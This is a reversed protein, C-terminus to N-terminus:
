AHLTKRMQQTTVAYGSSGYLAVAAANHGFVNLELAVSGADLVAMEVAALLARGLGGGRRAEVVQIDYLFATDPAGRPHDLGVWARGVLEGAPDVGSLFLMRPTRIGRPLLEANVALARDFAGEHAWRGVTVQEAAFEEATSRQWTDFESATMPRVSVEIMLGHDCRSPRSDRAFGSVRLLPLSLLALAVGLAAVAAMGGRLDTATSWLGVYVPGVLFGLYAIMTVVATARGRYAEDVRASVLGLLTPYLAATGAAAVVLGLVAIPVSPAASLTLAGVAATLAGLVLIPREGGPPLRGLSFRAVAVVGAFVAPGVAGFGPGADLEDVLFVAGWSQHANESAFALAGLLGIVLLPLYRIRPREHPLLRATNSTVATTSRKLSRLLGAGAAISLVAVILFPLFAPACLAASLGTALSALVVFSSFVGGSRLIISSGSSQEARGAISNMAVDTAGSALGVAILGVCLAVFGHATLAVGLGALGLAVIAAVAFRLGWRDLARGTLLMAPLAGAGIFLLAVGLEGDDVGAQLRLRPISAGWAGWFSGFSAAALYAASVLNRHSLVESTM